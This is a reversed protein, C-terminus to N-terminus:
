ANVVKRDGSQGAAAILKAYKSQVPFVFDQITRRSAMAFVNSEESNRFRNTPPVNSSRGDRTSLACGFMEFGNQTYFDNFLTPHLSYFGHNGWGSHPNEHLIYGGVKVMGAMNMLAQGINFCHEATGVDLVLDYAPRTFMQRNLDCLIEVGREKVIDYVHLECGAINFLSVADPIKRPPIGHRRCIAESDPLYEPERYGLIPEFAALPAVIDPYGFSAIKMGPKLIGVLASTQLVSLAM